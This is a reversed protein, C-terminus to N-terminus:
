PHVTFSSGALGLARRRRRIAIAAWITGAILGLYLGGHIGRVLAFDASRASGLLPEIEDPVWSASGHRALPGLISACGAACVLPSAVLLWLARYPLRPPAHPPTSIADCHGRRPRRVVSNAWLMVAAALATIQFGAQAGLRAAAARFDGDGAIGKGFVFYDPSLHATLLDNAAGAVGGAAAMAVLFSYERWKTAGGRHRLYDAAAVIAFLLVLLGVRAPFSFQDLEM